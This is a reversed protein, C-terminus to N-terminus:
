SPSGGPSTLVARVLCLVTEVDFPKELIHVNREERLQEPPRASMLIIPTREHGKIARLLQLCQLGDLEPLQYDLLIVDLLLTHAIKLAAFGDSVFFARYPTEQTFIHVLMEGISRDDDIILITGSDHKKQM